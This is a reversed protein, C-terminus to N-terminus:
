VEVPSEMTLVLYTEDVVRAFWKEVSIIPYFGSAVLLLDNPYVTIEDYTITRWINGMPKVPLLSRLHADIPYLKLCGIGSYVITPAPEWGAVTTGVRYVDAVETYVMSPM